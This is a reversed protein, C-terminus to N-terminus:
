KRLNYTFSLFYNTPAQIFYKATGDWDVYGNNYYEVDLINNVNFQVDVFWISAKAMGNLLVYEDLTTTNAFDIYSKGQYRGNLGLILWKTVNYDVLQNVIVNPTLIPKFEIGQQKISADMLTSTTTLKLKGVTHTAVLEVGTRFSQEVNQTLALGNMGFSGDLVIENEFDMYFYNLDFTSSKTTIRTGVEYDVVSEANTNGVGLEFNDMGMSMDTRTPERGTKGVSAFIDVNKVPQYTIGVKPNLFNWSHTFTTDGKFEFKTTRAQIDGFLYFKNLNLNTKVFVSSSPKYGVNTYLVGLSRESGVHERNYVNTHFGVTTKVISKDYTLTSFLGGFESQLAYNYMEDTSPFGLFNNLDFDYNGKIFNLYVSNKLTLNEGFNFKYQLQTLSQTFNDDEESNANTQPNIKLDEMSVGLWAMENKQNGIFGTIKFNGSGYTYFLSKSKNGSRDTYGDTGLLSGRLYLGNGNSFEGFFRSTGYSGHGHSFRLSQESLDPSTLQISGAYSASGNKTTGVGRQIQISNISTFFDPYNSFYIGQDEPENLPVGDLTVNIRTQDIGRLRFYSYGYQNGADSYVTMSPTQSLFFSPEQGFYRQKIDVLEINQFSFPTEQYATYDSTIEIADLNYTRLTDMQAFATISLISLIGFLLQKM